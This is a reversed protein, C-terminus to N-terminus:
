RYSVKLRLFAYCFCDEVDRPIPNSHDVLLVIPASKNQILSDLFHAETRRIAMIVLSKSINATIASCSSPHAVTKLSCFFRYVIPKTKPNTAKAFLNQLHVM